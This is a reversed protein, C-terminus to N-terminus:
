CFTTIMSLFGKVIFGDVSIVKRQIDYKYNKAKSM